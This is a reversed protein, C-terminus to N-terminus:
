KLTLLRNYMQPFIVKLYVKMAYVIWKRGWFKQRFRNYEKLNLGKPSHVLKWRTQLPVKPDHWAPMDNPTCTAVYNRTTYLNYGKKLARLGYDIDGMAHTYDASLNGLNDFIEKPVLVINGNIYKCAQLSGNPLVPGSESRGGYSFKGSDGSAMCAGVIIAPKENNQRAQEYCEFMEGLALGSILTDDNLWLYYNYNNKSAVDWALRMGGNWFLNGNGTIVEVNPFENKVAEGTGDTSGDDVLFVDITLHQEEKSANFLANLCALTKEKRNFCTLLVAINSHLQTM